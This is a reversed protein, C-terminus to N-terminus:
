QCFWQSFAISCCLSTSFLVFVGLVKMPVSRHYVGVVEEEKQWYQHLLTLKLWNSALFLLDTGRHSKFFLYDMCYSRCNLINARQDNYFVLNSFNQCIKLGYPMGTNVRGSWDDWLVIYTLSSTTFLLTFGSCSNWQWSDDSRVCAQRVCPIITM